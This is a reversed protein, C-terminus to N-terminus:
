NSVGYIKKLIRELAGHNQQYANPLNTVSPVSSAMDGRRIDSSEAGGHVISNRSRDIKALEQVENKTLKGPQARLRKKREKTEDYDYYNGGFMKWILAEYSLSMAVIAQGYLKRNAYLEAIHFLFLSQKEYKRLSSVLKRLEKYLPFTWSPLRISSDSSGTKKLADYDDLANKLQPIRDDKLPVIQTSQMSLGFQRIAKEGSQWDTEKLYNCLSASEFKDFFLNIANSLEVGKWLIDLCRVEGNDEGYLLQITQLANPFSSKFQMASLMLAPMWRFGHTIDLLINKDEMKIGSCYEMLIDMANKENLEKDHILFSVPIKWTKTLVTKLEDFDASSLGKAAPPQTKNELKEWLNLTEENLDGTGDYLLTSWSSTPTGVLVVQTIPYAKSTIVARPFCSSEIVKEDKFRYKVTRYSDNNKRDRSGRGLFSILTLSQQM